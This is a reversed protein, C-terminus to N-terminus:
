ENAGLLDNQRVAVDRHVTKEQDKEFLLSGKKSHPIAKPKKTFEVGRMAKMIWTSKRVFAMKGKFSDV